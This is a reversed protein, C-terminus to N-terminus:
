ITKARRRPRPLGMEALKRVLTRRAVGLLAAARTQNGACAALAEEIKEREASQSSGDGNDRGLGSAVEMTKRTNRPTLRDRNPDVDDDSLTDTASLLVAREVCNRLERVNGPWPQKELFDLAARSLTPAVARGLAAAAETAFLKAMPAIESARERLPPVVVTVGSLRFYLDERFLGERIRKGLDRNTAALFRVDLKRVRTGGLPIAERTEIVRLLKAQITLPMEGIEDLLVTGGNATEFLGPKAARAGSFAGAEYGFLESELLNEAFASCNLRLYPKGKRPSREHIAAAVVEKGVGTEGLLLVSITGPAIRDVLEFLKKMAVSQIVLKAPDDPTDRGGSPSRSSARTGSRLAQLHEGALVGEQVWRHGELDVQGATTTGGLRHVVLSVGGILGAVGTPVPEEGNPTIRKGGVRTGNASGNDKISVVGDTVALLAHNRSVSPSSLVIDSDETRGIRLFGTEPMPLLRAETKEVVTLWLRAAHISDDADDREDILTRMQNRRVADSSSLSSPRSMKAM